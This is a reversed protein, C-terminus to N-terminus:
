DYHHYVLLVITTTQKDRVMNHMSCTNRVNKHAPNVMEWEENVSNSSKTNKGPIGYTKKAPDRAPVSDQLSTNITLSSIASNSSSNLTFKVGCVSAAVTSSGVAVIVISSSSRLSLHVCVCVYM